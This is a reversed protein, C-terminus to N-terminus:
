PMLSTDDNFRLRGISRPYTTFQSRCFSMQCWTNELNSLTSGRFHWRTNVSAGNLRGANAVACSSATNLCKPNLDHTVQAGAPRTM